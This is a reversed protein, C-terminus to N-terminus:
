RAEEHPLDLAVQKFVSCLNELSDFRYGDWDIGNEEALWLRKGTIEGAPLLYYDRISEEHPHMRVALILDPRARQYLTVMWRSAGAGTLYHRCPYILLQFEENIFLSDQEERVMCGVSELHKRLDSIVVHCVRRLKRLTEKYSYDIAPRYGVLSYAAGLTGFRRRIAQVFPTASADRILAGTIKGYQKLVKRLHAIMEEDTLKHRRGLIIKSAAEFLTKPVIAEFANEARIWMNPPNTVYKSKLKYSRRHYVNHGIYKENTLIDHIADKKWLREGHNNKRNLSIAIDLVSRRREVFQRFIWNV